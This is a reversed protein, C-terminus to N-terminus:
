RDKNKPQGPKKSVAFILMALGSLGLLLVFITKGAQSQFANLEFLLMLLGFMIMGFAFGSERSSGASFAMIGILVILIPWYQGLFNYSSLFGLLDILVVIAILLFILALGISLFNNKKM